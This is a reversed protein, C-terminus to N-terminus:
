FIIIGIIGLVSIGVDVLGLLISFISILGGGIKPSASVIVGIIGLVIALLAAILGWVPDGSFTLFFSVIAAIVAITAVMGSKQDAMLQHGILLPELLFGKVCIYRQRDSELVILPPHIVTLPAGKEAAPIFV